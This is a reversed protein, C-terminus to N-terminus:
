CLRRVKRVRYDLYGFVFLSVMSRMDAVMEPAYRSLQTFKFNYDQVSMSESYSVRKSKSGKVRMAELFFDEFM